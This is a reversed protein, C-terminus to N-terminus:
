MVKCLVPIYRIIHHTLYVMMPITVISLLTSFAVCRSAFASDGNFKDTFIATNVAAPMSVLAVCAAALQESFGFLGVGVLALMPMILLRVAM